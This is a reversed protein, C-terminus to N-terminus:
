GVAVDHVRALLLLRHHDFRHSLLNQSRGIDRGSPHLQHLRRGRDDAEVGSRHTGELALFEGATAGRSASTM